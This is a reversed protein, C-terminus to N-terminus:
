KKRFKDLSLIQAGAVTAPKGEDNEAAAAGGTATEAHVKAAPAAPAPQLAPGRPKVAVSSPAAPAPTGIPTAAETENRSKKAARPKRSATARTTSTRGDEDVGNSAMSQSAMTMEADEFQLGYRVSPDFFVKLAAFPVVLREPISDFSLKVEFRDESVQLDWYRHQLVITMETPYKEKLRKSMGVGAACTDFSIYFHHDGPLGSKAARILAARVVGRLADQQLAEYDITQGGMM